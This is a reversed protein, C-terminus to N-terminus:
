RECYMKQDFRSMFTMFFSDSINTIGYKDLFKHWDQLTGLRGCIPLYELILRRAEEFRPYKAIDYTSLQKDFLERDEVDSFDGALIHDIATDYNVGDKKSTRMGNHSNGLANQYAGYAYLSLKGKLKDPINNYVKDYTIIEPDQGYKPLKLKDMKPTLCYDIDSDNTILISPKENESYLLMSALYALNDYEWGPVSISPIGFSNMNRVFGWKADFRVENKYLKEYALELDEQSTDPDAKMAEYKDRTMYSDLPSKKGQQGEIDGRDDKYAGGLIQTTIYGKDGDWKDLFLVYKDASVGYDRPIKNMTYICTRMLEAATYEGAKKDKSVGFLNKQLIVSFDVIAYAYKTGLM